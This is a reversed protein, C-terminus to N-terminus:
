RDARSLANAIRPAKPFRLVRSGSLGNSRKFHTSSSLSTSTAQTLIHFAPFRLKSAHFHSRPVISITEIVRPAPASETGHWARAPFDVVGLPSRLVPLIKAETCRAQKPTDREGERVRHPPRSRCRLFQPIAEERSKGEARCGETDTRQGHTPRADNSRREKRTARRM